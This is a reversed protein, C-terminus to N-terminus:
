EFLSSPQVEVTELEALRCCAQMELLSEAMIIISPM